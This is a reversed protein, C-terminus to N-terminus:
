IASEDWNWHHVDCHGPTRCLWMAGVQWDGNGLAWYRVQYPEARGNGRRRRAWECNGTGNRYEMWALAEALTGTGM